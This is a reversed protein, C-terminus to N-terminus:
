KYALDFGLFATKPGFQQRTQLWEIANSIVEACVLARSKLDVQCHFSKAERKVYRVRMKIKDGRQAGFIDFMRWKGVLYEEPMCLISNGFYKQGRCRNCMTLFRLFVNKGRKQRLKGRSLDVTYAQPTDLRSFPTYKVYKTSLRTIDFAVPASFLLRHLLFM